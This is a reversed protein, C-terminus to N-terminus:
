APVELVIKGQAHGSLSLTWAEAVNALPFSKGVITKIAGSDLLNAIQTLGATSAKMEMMEATVGRRTAEEKSPPQTTAILRGGSKLITFSRTQTDGGMLDLVLDIDKAVTEFRTAKYDIVQNAGLSRVFDANAASATALVKAGKWHAFQVAFSGVGGAAAHILVTQGPELHGHDFLAQWATQSATPVSAAQPHTLTKPKRAITTAPAAVFQAYAGVPQSNGYVPDGIKFGSVNAGLAEVVGSFDAGPIYPLKLPIFKAFAGSAVKHDFPNVSAAHVKILVQGGQPVPIAADEYVLKEVGGYAHVRIAKM